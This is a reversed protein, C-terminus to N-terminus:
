QVFLFLFTFLVFISLEKNQTIYICYLFCTIVTLNLCMIYGFQAQHGIESMKDDQFVVYVVVVQWSTSTVAFQHIAILNLHTAGDIAHHPNPRQCNSEHASPSYIPGTLGCYDHEYANLVWYTNNLFSQGDYCLPDFTVTKVIKQLIYKINNIM